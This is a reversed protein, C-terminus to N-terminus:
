APRPQGPEPEISELATRITAVSVGLSRAAAIAALVNAIM